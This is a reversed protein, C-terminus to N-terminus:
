IQTKEWAGCTCRSIYNTLLAECSKEHKIESNTQQWGHEFYPKDDEEEDFDNLDDFFDEEESFEQGAESALLTSDLPWSEAFSLPEIGRAVHDTESHNTCRYGNPGVEGCGPTEKAAEAVDACNDNLDDFFDDDQSAEQALLNEEFRIADGFPMSDYPDNCGYDEDM